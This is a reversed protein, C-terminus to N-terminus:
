DLWGEDGITDWFECLLDYNKEYEVLARVDNDGVPNMQADVNVRYTDWWSYQEQRGLYSIDLEYEPKGYMKPEIWLSVQCEEGYRKSVYINGTDWVPFMPETVNFSDYTIIDAYGETYLGKEQIIREYKGYSLRVAIQWWVGYILAMALAGGIVVKRTIKFKVDRVFYLYYFLWIACILILIVCLIRGCNKRYEEYDNEGGGGFECECFSRVNAAFQVVGAGNGKVRFDVDTLDTEALESFDYYTVDVRGASFGYCTGEKMGRNKELYERVIQSCYIDVTWGYWLAKENSSNSDMGFLMLGNVGAEKQIESLFDESNMDAPKELYVHYFDTNQAVYMAYAENIGLFIGVILLITIPISWRLFIKEQRNKEAQREIRITEDLSIRPRESRKRETPIVDGWNEEEHELEIM